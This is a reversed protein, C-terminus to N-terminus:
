IGQLHNAYLSPNSRYLSSYLLKYLYLSSLYEMGTIIISEDIKPKGLEGM